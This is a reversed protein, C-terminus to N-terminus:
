GHKRIWNRRKVYSCWNDRFPQMEEETIKGERLLKLANKYKRYVLASGDKWNAAKTGTKHVSYETGEEFARHMSSHKGHEIPITLKFPKYIKLEKLRRSTNIIKIFTGDSRQWLICELLHHRDLKM